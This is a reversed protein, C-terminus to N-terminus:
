RPSAGSIPPARGGHLMPAGCGSIATSDKGAADMAQFIALLSWSDDAYLLEQAEALDSVDQTLAEKALEKRQEVPVDQDGAWRPDHDKIRFKSGPPVRFKEIIKKRDLM